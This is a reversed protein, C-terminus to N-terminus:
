SPAEEIRTTSHDASGSFLLSQILYGLPGFDFGIPGKMGIPCLESAKLFFAYSRDGIELHAYGRDTEWELSFTGNVNPVIGPPPCFTVFQELAGRAHAIVQPTVAPAGDGDWDDQQFRHNETTFRAAELATM